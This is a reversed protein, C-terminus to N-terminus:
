NALTEFCAFDGHLKVAEAKYAEHADEATDYLGLYRLVGDATIQALWKGNEKKFTTGKLGADRRIRRNRANEKKTALRLNSRVNNMTDHDEHDVWISPDDMVWMILRAMGIHRQKSKKSPDHYAAVAYYSRTNKSWVAQWKLQSVLPFDSADVVTIQDKTTKICRRKGDSEIQRIREEIAENQQPEPLSNVYASLYEVAANQTPFTGITQRKGEVTVRVRWGNSDTRFNVSGSGNATKRKTYIPLPQPEQTHLIMKITM